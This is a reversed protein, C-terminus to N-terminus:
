VDDGEQLARKVQRWHARCGLANASIPIGCVPCYKSGDGSQDQQPQPSPADPEPAPADALTVQVISALAAQLAPTQGTQATAIQDAGPIGLRRMRQLQDQGVSLDGMLDLVIHAACDGSILGAGVLEETARRMADFGIARVLEVAARETREVLLVATFENLPTFELM